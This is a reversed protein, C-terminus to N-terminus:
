ETITETIQVFHSDSLGSVNYGENTLKTKASDQSYGTAILHGLAHIYGPVVTIGDSGLLVQKKGTRVITFIPSAYNGEKYQVKSGDTFRESVTTQVTGATAKKGTPVVQAPLKYLINDIM